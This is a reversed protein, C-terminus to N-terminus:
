LSDHRHLSMAMFSHSPACGQCAALHNQHNVKLREGCDSRARRTPRLAGHLHPIWSICHAPLRTRRREREDFVPACM